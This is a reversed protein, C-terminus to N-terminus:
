KMMCLGKKWLTIERPFILKGSEFVAKIGLKSLLNGSVLNRSMDLVYLVNALLVKEGPTFFLDM